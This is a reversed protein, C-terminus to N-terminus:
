LQFMWMVWSSMIRNLPCAIAAYLSFAAQGSKRSPSCLLAGFPQKDVGRTLASARLAGVKKRLM